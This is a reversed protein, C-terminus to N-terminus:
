ILSALSGDPVQLREHFAQELLAAGLYNKLSARTPLGNARLKFDSFPGRYQVAGGPEYRGYEYYKTLGNKSITIGSHGLPLRGIPTGVRYGVFTVALADKGDPDIKRLPNNHAYAYRNLRQPATAPNRQVEPDISTFRGTIPSFFRAHMYDLDDGTGASLM